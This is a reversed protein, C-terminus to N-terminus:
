PNPLVIEPAVQGGSEGPALPVLWLQPSADDSGTLVLRSNESGGVVSAGGPVEVRGKPKLEILDWVRLTGDGSLSMVHRWDSAVTLAWVPGTHGAMRVPVAGTQLDAFCVLGDDGGFLFHRGNPSVAL